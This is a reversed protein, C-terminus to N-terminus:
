LIHLRQTSLLRTSRMFGHFGAVRLGIEDDHARLFHGACTMHPVGPRRMATYQLGLSVLVSWPVRESGSM